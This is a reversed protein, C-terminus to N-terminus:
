DKVYRRAIECLVNGEGCSNELIKKGYLGKQYGACDLMTKVDKFQLVNQCNKLCATEEDRSRFYQLEIIDSFVYSEFRSKRIFIKSSM